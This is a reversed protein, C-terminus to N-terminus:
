NMWSGSCCHNALLVTAGHLWESIAAERPLRWHDGVMIARPVDVEVGDVHRNLVSWRHKRWGEHVGPQNLGIAILISEVNREYYSDIRSSNPQRCRSVLASRVAPGGSGVSYSIM